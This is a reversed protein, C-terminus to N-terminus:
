LRADPNAEMYACMESYTMDSTDNDSVGETSNGVRAGKFTPETEFLYKTDDSEVLTKIQEDLGSVNGDKDLKVRTMDLLAKVAKSTKAKAGTLAKDVANEIRLANMEDNHKKKATENEQQLAAIQNRLEENDKFKGQLDKLQKDRNKITSNATELENKVDNLEGKASEIDRGNAEMIKDIVEKELGLSELFSRKM